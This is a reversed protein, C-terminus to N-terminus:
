EVCEANVAAADATAAPSEPLGQTEGGGHGAGPGASMATLAAMYGEAFQLACRRMAVDDGASAVAAARLLTGLSPRDTNDLGYYPLLVGGAADVVLDGALQHVDQGMSSHQEVGAASQEAYWGLSAESWVGQLSRTFGLRAYQEAPSTNPAWLIHRFPHGVQADWQAASERDPCLSLLLM